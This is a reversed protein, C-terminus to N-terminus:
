WPASATMRTSLVNSLCVGDIIAEGKFAKITPESIDFVEGLFFYDYSYHSVFAIQLCLSCYLFFLSLRQGFFNICDEEFRTGFTVDIHFFHKLCDCYSKM